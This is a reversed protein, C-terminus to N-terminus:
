RVAADSSRSRRSILILRLRRPDHRGRRRGGPGGPRLAPRLDAGPGTGLVNTVMTAPRGSRSASRSPTPSATSSSSTTCRGPDALMGIMQQKVADEVGPGAGPDARGRAGAHEADAARGPEPVGHVGSVLAAGAGQDDGHLEALRHRHRQRHREHVEDGPADCRARLGPHLPTLPPGVSRAGIAIGRATSSARRRAHGHEALHELRLLHRRLHRRHLRHVPRVAEQGHRTHNKNMSAPLFLAPPMPRRCGARDAPPFADSYQKAAPNGQPQRWDTPLKIAFSQFQLKALQQMMSAQPAPM